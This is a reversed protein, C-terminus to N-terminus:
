EFYDFDDDDFNDDYFDDDYLDDDYSDGVYPDGENLELDPASFEIKKDRKNRKDKIRNLAIMGVYTLLVGLCAGFECGLIRAVFGASGAAAGYILREKNGDPIMFPDSLMTIAVFIFANALLTFLSGKLLGAENQPFIFSLLLCSAMYGAFPLASSVRRISFFLASAVMAALSTAGMPGPYRGELLSAMGIESAIAEGSAYEINADLPLYSNAIIKPFSFVYNPFCVSIFIIGILAPAFLNGRTLEFPLKSIIVALVSGISPLWYPISAPMLLSIIAAGVIPTLNYLESKKKFLRSYLLETVTAYFISLFCIALPRLGYLYCSMLLPAALMICYDIMISRIYKDNTDSENASYMTM